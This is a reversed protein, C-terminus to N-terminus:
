ERRGRVYAEITRISLFNEIVVDEPPVSVDFADELFLVLSMMGVSDVLGSGLLDEDDGVSAGNTRNLLQESIYRRITDKM